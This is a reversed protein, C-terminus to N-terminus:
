NAPKQMIFLYNFGRLFFNGEAAAARWNGKQLSKNNRTVAIIDIAKFKAQLMMFLKFGIPEFGTSKKFSDSVYLAMYKGPKLVRHIEAIVKSMEDYYQGQEAPLKGICKGHDSYDVHDSYPPDIFVFDVTSKKIPLSRADSQKIDKRYPVLDFGMGNRDTDKCVDLTTGSGCMPDLVVDGPETYRQLLNWILYSPTAGVYAQDGQMSNGYHQSPYYWLTTTQVELQPKENRIPRKPKTHPRPM